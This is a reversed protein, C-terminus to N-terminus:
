AALSHPIYRDAPHQPATLPRPHRPLYPLRKPIELALDGMVGEGTSAFSDPVVAIRKNDSIHFVNACRPNGEAPLSEVPKSAARCPCQLPPMAASRRIPNLNLCLAHLAPHDHTSLLPNRISGIGPA